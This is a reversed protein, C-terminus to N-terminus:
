IPKTKCKKKITIKKKQNNKSAWIIKKKTDPRINPVKNEKSEIFKDLSNIDIMKQRVKNKKHM